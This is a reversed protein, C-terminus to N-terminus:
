PSAQGRERLTDVLINVLDSLAQGNEREPPTQPPATAPATLVPALIQGLAILAHITEVGNGAQAKSAANGVDLRWDAGSYAMAGTGEELTSGWTVRAQQTFGTESVEGTVPDTIRETFRVTNTACGAAVLAAVVCVAAARRM